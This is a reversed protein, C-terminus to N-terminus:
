NNRPKPTLNFQPALKNDIVVTMGPRLKFVGTSVIRDGAKVGETAVVFDGQRAGLRVVRQQALLPKVGNTETKGEEIIFVSDGFPEHVVATAPIFLVNESRALVM